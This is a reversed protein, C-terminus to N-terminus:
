AVAVQKLIAALEALIMATAGWICDEQYNFVGANWSVSGRSFCRQSPQEDKLLEAVPLHILRAVERSCPRYEVIHKRIALFPTLFYNSNFGWMPFLPGIVEGPFEEVGLEECFERIAADYASEAEEVRGGPLSIQGPHDVLNPPRVTLPISGSQWNAGPSPFELLIMVAATRATPGPPAFHRGYSLQPCYRARAQQRQSYLENRSLLAQLRRVWDSLKDATDM